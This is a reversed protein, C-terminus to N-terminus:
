ETGYLIFDLLLLACLIDKLEPSGFLVQIIISKLCIWLEM